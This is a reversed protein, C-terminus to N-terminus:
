QGDQLRGNVMINDQWQGDHQSRQGGHQDAMLWRASMGSATM